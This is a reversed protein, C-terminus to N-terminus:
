GNASVTVQSGSSTVIGVTNSNNHCTPDGVRVAPQGGINVTTSGSTFTIIEMIVESEVGGLAGAQDGESLAIISGLNLAPEACIMVNMVLTGPQTMSTDGMNPYPIPTVTPGTQTKCVDPVTATFTVEGTNLM